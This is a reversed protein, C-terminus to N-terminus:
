SKQNREILEKMMQKENNYVDEHELWISLLQEIMGLAAAQQRGIEM